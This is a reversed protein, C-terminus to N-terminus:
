QSDHLSTLLLLLLRSFINLFFKISAGPSLNVVGAATVTPILKAISSFPFTISASTNMGKM